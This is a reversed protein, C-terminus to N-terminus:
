VKYSDGSYKIRFDYRVSLFYFRRWAESPNPLIRGAFHKIIEDAFSLGLLGRNNFM